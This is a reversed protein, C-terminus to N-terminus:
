YVFVRLLSQFYLFLTNILFTGNAWAIGSLTLIPVPIPIGIMELMLIVFVGVYGYHSIWNQFDM